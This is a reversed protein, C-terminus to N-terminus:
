LKDAGQPEGSTHPGFCKGAKGPPLHCRQACILCGLQIAAPKKQGEKPVLSFDLILISGQLGMVGGPCARSDPAIHSLQCAFTPAQSQQCGVICAPKKPLPINSQFFNYTM